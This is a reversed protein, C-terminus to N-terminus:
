KPLKTRHEISVGLTSVEAVFVTATPEHQVVLQQKGAWAVDVTAPSRWDGGSVVLVNGGETSSWETATTLFATGKRVVSVQTSYATTAGCDRVFVIAEMEGDPSAVRSLVKNECPDLRGCGALSLLGAMALHRAGRTM